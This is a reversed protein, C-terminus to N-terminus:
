EGEGGEDGTQEQDREANRQQEIVRPIGRHQFRKRARHRRRIQEKSDARGPEEM